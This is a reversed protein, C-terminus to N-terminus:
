RFRFDILSRKMANWTWARENETEGDVNRNMELFISNCLYFEGRLIRSYDLCTLSM